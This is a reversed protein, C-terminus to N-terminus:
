LTTLGKTLVQPITNWDNHRGKSRLSVYQKLRIKEEALERPINFNASIIIQDAVIILRKSINIWKNCYM